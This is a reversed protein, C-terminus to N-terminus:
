QSTKPIVDWFSDRQKKMQELAQQGSKTVKFLHKRRGGREPTVGDYRSSLFGKQELRALAAHVTSITISRNCKDKIEKQIAVGYANDFLAATSLLILEELEGLNTGKM